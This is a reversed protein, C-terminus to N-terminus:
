YLKKTQAWYHRGYTIGSGKYKKTGRMNEPYFTHPPLILDQDTKLENIVKTLLPAGITKWCPEIIIARGMRQIYERLIPHNPIAGIVSNSIRGRTNSEVAFFNCNLLEDIPKLCETDADIYVGGNHFLIEIRAVDAMGHFKKKQKYIKFLDKNKLPLREIMKENWVIYKWNPHKEKWTNMWHEPMPKDGMWIQHLIKPIM